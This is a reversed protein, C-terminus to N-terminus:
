GGYDVYHIDIEIDRERHSTRLEIRGWNFRVVQPLQDMKLIDKLFEKHVDIVRSYEEDATNRSLFEEGEQLRIVVSGVKGQFFLLKMNVLHGGVNIDKFFTRREKDLERVGEDTLLSVLNSAKIEAVSMCAKLVLSDKLIIDGTEKDIIMKGREKFNIKFEMRYVCKEIIPEYM